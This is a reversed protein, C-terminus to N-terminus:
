GANRESGRSLAIRGTLAIEVRAVVTGFLLSRECAEGGFSSCRRRVTVNLIELIQGVTYTHRTQARSEAAHCAREAVYMRACFHIILITGTTVENDTCFYIAANELPVDQGVSSTRPFM